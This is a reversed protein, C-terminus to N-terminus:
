SKSKRYMEDSLGFIWNANIGLKECVNEINKVTFHYNQVKGNNKKINYFNQKKIDIIECFETDFRIEGANQLFEYLELMRKDSTFLM